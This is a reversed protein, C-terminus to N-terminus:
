RGPAGRHHRVWGSITVVYCVGHGYIRDVRVRVVTGHHSLDSIPPSMGSLTLCKYRSIACPWLTGLCSRLFSSVSVNAILSWAHSKSGHAYAVTNNRLFCNWPRGEGLFIGSMSLLTESATTSQGDDRLWPRFSGGGGRWRGLPRGPPRLRLCIRRLTAATRVSIFSHVADRAAAAAM